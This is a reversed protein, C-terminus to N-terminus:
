VSLFSNIAEFVNLWKPIGMQGGCMKKKKEKKEM